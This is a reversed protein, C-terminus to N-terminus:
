ALKVTSGWFEQALWPTSRKAQRGQPRKPDGQELQGRQAPGAHLAWHGGADAMADEGEAPKQEQSSLLEQIQM